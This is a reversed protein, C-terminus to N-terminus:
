PPIPPDPTSPLPTPWYTLQSSSLRRQDYSYSQPTRRSSTLYNSSSLLAVNDAPDMLFISRHQNVCRGDTPLEIGIGEWEMVQPQPTIQEGEFVRVVGNDSGNGLWHTEGSTTVRRYTYAYSANHAPVIMDAVLETFAPLAPQTIPTSTLKITTASEDTADDHSEDGNAITPQKPIFNVNRWEGPQTAVQGELNVDAIDTWLEWTGSTDETPEFALTFHLHVFRDADSSSIPISTERALPPNFTPM